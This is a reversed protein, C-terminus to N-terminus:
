QCKRTVIWQSKVIEGGILLKTVVVPDEGGRTNIQM